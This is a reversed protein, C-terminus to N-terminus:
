RLAMICASTCSPSSGASVVHISESNSNSSLEGHTVGSWNEWALVSVCSLLVALSGWFPCELSKTDKQQGCALFVIDCKRVIAKLRSKRPTVLRASYKACSVHLPIAVGEDRGTCSSVKQCHIHRLRNGEEITRQWALVYQSKM